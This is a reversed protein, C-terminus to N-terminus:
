FEINQRQALQLRLKCLSKAFDIKFAKLNIARIGKKATVQWYLVWANTVTTNVLTISFELNGNKICRMKTLFRGTNRYLLDVNKIHRSTVSV